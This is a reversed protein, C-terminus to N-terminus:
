LAPGAGALLGSPRRKARWRRALAVVGRPVLVVGVFWGPQVLAGWYFNDPRAFLAIMLALGGYLLFCFLGQRRGLALWGLPPLLTLPIALWPPVWQLPSTAVIAGLAGLPRFHGGWGQSVLDVPFSHLAVLHWHWALLAAYVALLLAWACVEAWQRRTAAVALALGAFPLALERIALASAATALSWGTRGNLRLAAALTILMGAWREHLIVPNGGLRAWGTAVCVLGGAIAEVVSARRRLAAFWALGAAVLLAYALVRLAEWGFAAAAWVLTPPRVTLPPRVPYRHARQQAPAAVYYSEGASVRAAIDRYLRKDGYHTTPKHPPVLAKTCGTALLLSALALLLVIPRV